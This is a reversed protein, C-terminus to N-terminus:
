QYVELTVEGVEVGVFVRSKGVGLHSSDTTRTREPVLMQCLRDINTLAWRTSDVDDGLLWFGGGLGYVGTTGDRGDTVPGACPSGEASGGFGELTVVSRVQSM